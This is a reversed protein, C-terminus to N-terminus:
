LYGGIRLANLTENVRQEEYIGDKMKKLYIPIGEYELINHQYAEEIGNNTFAVWRRFCANCRGCPKDEGSYCSVTKLLNAVPLGQDLYWRVMETKTMHLFPSTISINRDNLYSTLGSAFHMFPPSRDPLSLEGKQVTLIIHDSYKAAVMVLFANRMPIYADPEEWLGLNLTHERITSPVLESIWQEEKSQYRHGLACYLTQPQGEFHWAIYSDLGSLLLIKDVMM